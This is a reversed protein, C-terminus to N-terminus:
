VPEQSGSPMACAHAFNSKIQYSNGNKQRISAAPFGPFSVPIGHM